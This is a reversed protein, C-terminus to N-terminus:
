APRLSSPFHEGRRARRMMQECLMKEAVENRRETPVLGKGEALRHAASRRAEEEISQGYSDADM